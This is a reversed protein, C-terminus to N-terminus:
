GEENSERRVCVIEANNTTIVNGKFDEFYMSGEYANCYQVKFLDMGSITSLKYTYEQKCSIFLTSLLIISLCMKVKKM